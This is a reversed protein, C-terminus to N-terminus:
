VLKRKRAIVLAVMGPIIPLWYSVFRYSLAVALAIGDDVGFAILTATLGAESGVLGGPTPTVTAVLVGGTLTLLAVTFPLDVGFAKMSLWIAVTHFTTNGLVCIFAIGTKGLRKRYMVLAGVISRTFKTLIIAHTHRRAYLVGLAAVGVCVWLWISVQPIHPAHLVVPVAFLLGGLLLIHGLSTLFNNIAVVTAAEAVTHKKRHLYDAFLGIGGIGAPLLRNVFMGAWEVLLTNSFNINKLALLKYAGAASTVAGCVSLAALVIFTKNASKLADISTQFQSIQPLFIYLALLVFLMFALDQLSVELDFYTLTYIHKKRKSRPQKM